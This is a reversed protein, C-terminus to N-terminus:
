RPATDVLPISVTPIDTWLPWFNKRRGKIIIQEKDYTAIPMKQSQGYPYNPITAQSRNNSIATSLISLPSWTSGWRLGIAFNSTEPDFIGKNVSLAVSNRGHTSGIWFFPLIHSRDSTLSALSKVSTGAESHKLSKKSLLELWDCFSM